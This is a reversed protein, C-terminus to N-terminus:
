NKRAYVFEAFGLGDWMGGDTTLPMGFASRALNLALGAPFMALKVPDRRTGAKLIRMDAALLVNAVDKLDYVRVHTPDDCFNLTGVASPLTLSRPGPFEVYIKGGSKLKGTLAGLVELGNRLHEIVHAFLVIDFQGEPVMSLDGRSLDVEHFAEMKAFDSADNNYDRSRDLGHYRCKPFYRLAKAASHNGCGVDLLLFERDRYEKHFRKFKVPMM